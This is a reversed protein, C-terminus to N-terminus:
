AQEGRDRPSIKGKDCNNNLTKKTKFAEKVAITLGSLFDLM